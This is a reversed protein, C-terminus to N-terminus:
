PIAPVTETAIRTERAGSSWRILAITYGTPLVRALDLIRPPALICKPRVSDYRSKKTKEKKSLVNIADISPSLRGVRCNLARPASIAKSQSPKLLNISTAGDRTRTMKFLRFQRTLGAPGCRERAVYKM